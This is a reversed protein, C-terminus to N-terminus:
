PQYLRFRYVSRSEQHLTLLRPGVFRIERLEQGAAGELTRLRLGSAVEWLSVRNEFSGALALVGGDDSFAAHTLNQEPSPALLPGQEPVAGVTWVEVAAQALLDLVLHRGDPSFALVRLGPTAEGPPPRISYIREEEALNWVSVVNETAPDGTTSMVTALVQGDPSLALHNFAGGSQPLLVRRDGGVTWVILLQDNGQYGVTAAVRGDASLATVAPANTLSFGPVPAQRHVVGTDLDLAVLGTRDLAVGLLRNGVLRHENADIAFGAPHDLRASPFCTDQVGSLINCREAGVATLCDRRWGGDQGALAEWVGVCQAEDGPFCRAHVACYAEVTARPYPARFVELQGAADIRLRGTGGLAEAFTSGTGPRWRWLFRSGAQEMAVALPTPTDNVDGRQLAAVVEVVRGDPSFPAGPAGVVGPWTGDGPIIRGDDPPPGADEGVGLDRGEIIGPDRVCRASGDVFDCVEGQPCPLREFRGQLSCEELLEGDCRREGATCVAGCDIPCNQPSEGGECVDNGCSAADDCSACVVGDRGVSAVGCRCPVAFQCVVRCSGVGYCQGTAQGQADQVVGGVASDCAAEAQAGLLPNSGLPCQAILDSQVCDQVSGDGGAQTADDCGSLFVLLFLPNLRMM